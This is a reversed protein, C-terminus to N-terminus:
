QDPKESEWENYLQIISSEVKKQLDGSLLTVQKKWKGADNKYAPWAIWVDGLTEMVGCVVTISGNFTVYANAKRSSSKLPILNTIEYSLTGTSGDSIKKNFIADEFIKMIGKNALLVQPYVASTGSVYEPMRIKNEMLRISSIELSDNVVVSAFAKVDRNDDVPMLNVSTIIISEEPLSYCIGIFLLFCIYVATVLIHIIKKYM